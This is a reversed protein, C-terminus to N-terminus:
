AATETKLELDFSLQRLPTIPPPITAQKVKPPVVTQPIPPEPEIAGKEFQPPYILATYTRWAGWTELSLSDGHIVTANMGLLTTQIYAAQVCRLDVDVLTFHVRRHFPMGRDRMAEAIAIVMAGCGVAPEAIRYVRDAMVKEADDHLSFRAMMRAVEIPTFFQGAHAKGALEQFIPGLFDGTKEELGDVVLALSRAHLDLCKKQERHYRKVTAMYAAENKDWAEGFLTVGALCRFALELFDGFVDFRRRGEAQAIEDMNKIFQNQLANM